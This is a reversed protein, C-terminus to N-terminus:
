VVLYTVQSGALARHTQSLLRGWELVEKLKLFHCVKKTVPCPVKFDKTLSTFCQAPSTFICIPAQKYFLQYM